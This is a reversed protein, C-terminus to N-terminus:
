ADHGSAAEGTAPSKGFRMTEFSTLENRAAKPASIDSARCIERTITCIKEV